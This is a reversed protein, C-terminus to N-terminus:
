AKAVSTGGKSTALSVVIGVVYSVLVTPYVAELMDTLGLLMWAVGVVMGSAMAWFAGQRTCKKWTLGVLIAFSVPAAAVHQLTLFVNTLTASPLLIAPILTLYAFVFTIIKSLKLVKADDVQPNIETKYVNTIITGTALMMTAMTAAIIMTAFAFIVGAFAPDSYARIAYAFANTGDGLDAGSAKAFIGCTATLLCIPAALVYGLISGTRAASASKAALLPQLVSQMVATSLCGGLIWAIIRQTPMNGMSSYEPPLESMMVSFGGFKPLTMLVFIILLIYIGFCVVRGVSSMGRMGSFSTYIVAVTLGIFMALTINLGPIAIQIISAVTRLQYPIYLFGYVIWAYSYLRSTRTDFRKQLYIPVSDGPMGNRIIKAFIALAIFYFSGAISYWAGSVGLNYGNQAAGVVAMGGIQWAAFVCGLTLPGMTKDGGSWQSSSKIKTGSYVGIGVIIVFTVIWTAILMDIRGKKELIPGQTNAGSRAEGTRFSHCLGSIGITM